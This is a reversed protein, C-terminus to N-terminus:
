TLWGEVRKEREGREGKENPQFGGGVVGGDGEGEEAGQKSAWRRVLGRQVSWWRAGSKRVM